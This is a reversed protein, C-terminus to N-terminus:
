DISLLLANPTYESSIRLSRWAHPEGQMTGVVVLIKYASHFAVIAENRWLMQWSM